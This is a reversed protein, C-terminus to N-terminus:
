SGAFVQHRGTGIDTGYTEFDITGIKNNPEIDKTFIPFQPNTYNIEVNILKSNLDFYYKKKNHERIFGFETRIDVWSNLTDGTFTLFKESFDKIEVKNCLLNNENYYTKISAYKNKNLKYGILNNNKDVILDGYNNIPTNRYEYDNLLNAKDINKKNKYKFYIEKEINDDLIKNINDLPLNFDNANLWPRSM